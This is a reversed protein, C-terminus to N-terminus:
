ITVPPPAAVSLTKWRSAYSEFDENTRLVDAPPWQLGVPVFQVPWFPVSLFDFGPIPGFPIFGQQRQAVVQFVLSGVAYTCVYIRIRNKPSLWGEHYVTIVEGRRPAFSAAMWMCVSTPPIDLAEKFRHRVTRLFFPPRNRAVHDFVIATKFAFIALSRARKKDIITGPKLKILETMAPKAHKSEVHSMWGNNCPRCVVKAKWDLTSSVWQGLVTGHEDRRTFLKKGPFLDNM